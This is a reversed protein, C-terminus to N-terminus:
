VNELHINHPPAGARAGGYGFAYGGESVGSAGYAYGPYNSNQLVDNGYPNSNATYPYGQEGECAPMTHSHNGHEKTHPHNKLEHANDPQTAPWVDPNSNLHLSGTSSGHGFFKTYRPPKETSPQESLPITGNFADTQDFEVVTARPGLQRRRQPIRFFSRINFNKAKVDKLTARNKMYYYQAIMSAPFFLIGIISLAFVAKQLQCATRLSPMFTLQKGKGTGFGGPGFGGAPQTVDGNGLPTKVNGICAQTGNRAMIAIAMFAAAFVFDLVIALGAFFPISGINLTLISALLTYATAIGSIGEVAQIWKQTPLGHDSLVALFYSFIGLVIGSVCLQCLRLVLNSIRIANTLAM